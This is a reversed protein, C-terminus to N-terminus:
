VNFIDPFAQKGAAVARMATLTEAPPSLKDIFGWAGCEIARVVLEPETRGSYIIARATAGTKTLEWLVDLPDPGPMTLDMLVLDPKLRQLAEDLKGASQITGVCVMDTQRAILKAWSDSLRAEDDVLLVTIPNSM